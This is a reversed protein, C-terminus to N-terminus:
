YTRGGMYQFRYEQVPLNVKRGDKLEVPVVRDQREARYGRQEWKKLIAELSQGPENRVLASNEQASTLDAKASRGEASSKVAPEAKTLLVGSTAGAPQPRLNWGLAFALALCAALASLGAIMRFGPSKRVPISAAAPPTVTARGSSSGASEALAGLSQRWAQSELFALACRRWGDPETELRQLLLRREADPLEGDVLRDVLRDDPVNRNDQNDLPMNM